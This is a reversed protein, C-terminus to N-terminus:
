HMPAMPPPHSPESALGSNASPAARSPEASLKTPPNAAGHQASLPTFVPNDYLNGKRGTTVQDDDAGSKKFDSEINYSNSSRVAQRHYVIFVVVLILLLVGAIIIWLFFGLGSIL